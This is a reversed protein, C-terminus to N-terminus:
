VKIHDKAKAGLTVMGSEDIWKRSIFLKWDTCDCKKKLIIERFLFYADWFHNTTSQDTRNIGVSAYM